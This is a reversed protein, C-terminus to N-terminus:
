VLQETKKFAKEPHLIQSTLQFAPKLCVPCDKLDLEEFCVLHVPEGCCQTYKIYGNNTHCLQCPKRDGSMFLDAYKNENELSLGGLLESLQDVPSKVIEVSLPLIGKSNIKEKIKKIAEFCDIAGYYAALGECTRNNKDKLNFNIGGIKLLLNFCDTAKYICCIMAPSWGENSKINIVEEYQEPYNQYVLKCFYYLISPVNFHCSYHLCSWFYGKVSIEENPLISNSKYLEKVKELDKNKIAGHM